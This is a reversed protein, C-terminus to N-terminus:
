HFRQLFINKVIRLVFVFSFLVKNSENNELNFFYLCYELFGLTKRTNSVVGCLIFRCAKESHTVLSILCDKFLVGYM